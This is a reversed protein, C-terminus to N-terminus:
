RQALRWGRHWGLIRQEAVLLGQNIIFGFVGLLLIGAWMEPIAFSQQAQLTLFGVGNSAGVMETLVTLILAVPLAVRFGTFIQPSAGPIVIGLIRDRTSLRHVRAVESLTPEIALVGDATNLLIPWVAGFVIVFLKETIGTGLLLIGMPILVPPPIFRLFEIIGSTAKRFPPILGIAFGLAVGVAAAIWFGLSFRILSPLLDSGMRRALWTHVFSAGITRLPPYYFSHRRESVIWWIALLTLPVGVELVLALHRRILAM